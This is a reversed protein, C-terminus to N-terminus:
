RTLQAVLFQRRRQALRDPDTVELRPVAYTWGIERITKELRRM